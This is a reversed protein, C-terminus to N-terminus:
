VDVRKNTLLYRGVGDLCYAVTKLHLDGGLISLADIDVHRCITHIHLSCAVHHLVDQAYISIIIHFYRGLELAAKHNLTLFVALMLQMVKHTLLEHSLSEVLYEVVREGLTSVVVIMVCPRLFVAHLYHIGQAAVKAHHALCQEEASQLTNLVVGLASVLVQSEEFESIYIVEVGLLLVVVVWHKGIALLIVQSQPHSALSHFATPCM